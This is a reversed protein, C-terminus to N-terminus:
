QVWDSWTVEQSRLHGKLITGCLGLKPLSDGKDAHSHRFEIHYGFYPFPSNKPPLWTRLGVGAGRIKKMVVRQIGAHNSVTDRLKAHHGFDAILRGGCGSQLPRPGWLVM